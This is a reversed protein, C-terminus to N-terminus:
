RCGEAKAEYEVVDVHGALHRGTLHRRDPLARCQRRDGGYSKTVRRGFVVWFDSLERADHEDDCWFDDIESEDANELNTKTRRTVDIAM